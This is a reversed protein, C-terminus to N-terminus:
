RCQGGVDFVIYSEGAASKSARDASYTGVIIDGVGEGAGSVLMSGDLLSLDMVSTSM